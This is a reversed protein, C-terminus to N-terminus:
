KPQIMTKTINQAKKSVNHVYYVLLLDEFPPIFFWLHFLGVTKLTKELLKCAINIKGGDEPFSSLREHKKKVHWVRGELEKPLVNEGFTHNEPMNYRTLAFSNLVNM